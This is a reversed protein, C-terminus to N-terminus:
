NQFIDTPVQTVIFRRLLKQSQITTQLLKFFSLLFASETQLQEKDWSSRETISLSSVWVFDSEELEDAQLIELLEGAHFSGLKEANVANISM